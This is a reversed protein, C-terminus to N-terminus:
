VVKMVYCEDMREFSPLVIESVITSVNVPHPQTITTVATGTNVIEVAANSKGMLDAEEPTTGFWTSGLAGDPILTVLNDPYFQHTTGDNDKFKKNYDVISINLLQSIINKVVIDTMYVTAGTNQALVASRVAKSKTLLTLTATSMLAISPRTGSKTYVSEIAKKLDAIPDSTDANSWKDSDSVIKMFNNNEFSGDPDYNYSYVMDNASISISPKGNEPSLLQMIMREPIVDAGDILNKADDFIKDLTAKLYIDDKDQARLIDQRDKETVIFSERFFPMETEIKQAGIRNRPKAKADFNSPMLSIPLGRSGKIWSLDLGAKKKAPFLAAGLYPIANSAVENYYAAIARATFLKTLDM